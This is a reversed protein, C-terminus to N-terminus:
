HRGLSESVNARNMAKTILPIKHARRAALCGRSSRLAQAIIDSDHNQAAKPWTRNVTVTVWPFAGVGSSFVM